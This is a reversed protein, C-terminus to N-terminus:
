AVQEHLAALLDHGTAGHEPAYAFSYESLLADILTPSQPLLTRSDCTRLWREGVKRGPEGTNPLLALFALGAFDSGSVEVVKDAKRCCRQALAYAGARAKNRVDDGLHATAEEWNRIQLLSLGLAQPTAVDSAKKSARKGPQLVGDIWQPLRKFPVVRQQALGKDATALVRSLRWQM